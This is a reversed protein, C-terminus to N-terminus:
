SFKQDFLQGELAKHSLHRLVKLSVKAELRVGDHRQLLSGFGVEGGEELVRIQAGDVGLTDGDHGLVHLKGAADTAFTVLSTRTANSVHVLQAFLCATHLECRM